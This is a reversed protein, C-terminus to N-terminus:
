NHRRSINLQDGGIDLDDEVKARRAGASEEEVEKIRNDPTASGSGRTCTGPAQTQFGTGQHLLNGSLQGLM